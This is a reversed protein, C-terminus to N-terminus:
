GGIANHRCSYCIYCVFQGLNVGGQVGHQSKRLRHTGIGAYGINDVDANTPRVQPRLHRHQRQIRKSDRALPKVKDGIHVAMFQVCGQAVQLGLM